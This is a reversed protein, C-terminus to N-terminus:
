DRGGVGSQNAGESLAEAGRLAREDPAHLGVRGHRGAHELAPVHELLQPAQAQEGRALDQFGPQRRPYM